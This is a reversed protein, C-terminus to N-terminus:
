APVGCPVAGPEEAPPAAPRPRLAACCVFALVAWFFAFRLGQHAMGHVLAPVLYLAARLDLRGLFLLACAFCGAGVVGYCFLLTGFSSHLETGYLDSRFRGYAGEGAGLLIHEPYNAIRDYGRTALSDYQGSGALHAHAKDLFDPAFDQALLVAAVAGAALLLRVPRGLNAVLALVGLGM